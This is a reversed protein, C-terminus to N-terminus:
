SSAKALSKFLVARAGVVCDDGIVVGPGIFADMAIWSREGVVIRSGVVKFDNEIERTAGCFRVYQSVNCGSRFEVFDNNYIEVGPALGVNSAIILKSPDRIRVSPYIRASRDVKAGFIRLIFVRWSFMFFPTFRFFLLYALTWFGRFVKDKYNHRDVRILNKFSKM